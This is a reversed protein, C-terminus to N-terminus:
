INGAMGADHPPGVIAAQVTAGGYRSEAGTMEAEWASARALLHPLPGTIHYIQTVAFRLSLTQGM